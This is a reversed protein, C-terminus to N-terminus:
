FTAPEGMEALVRMRVADASVQETLLFFSYVPRSATPRPKHEVTFGSRKSFIVCLTGLLFRYDM